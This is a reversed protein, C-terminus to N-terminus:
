EAELHDMGSFVIVFFHNFRFEFSSDAGDPAAAWPTCTSNTWEDM